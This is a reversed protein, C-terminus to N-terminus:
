SIEHQAEPDIPTRCHEWITLCHVRRSEGRGNERAHGKCFHWLRGGSMLDKQTANRKVGASKGGSRRESQDGSEAKRDAGEVRVGNVKREYGVKFLTRM